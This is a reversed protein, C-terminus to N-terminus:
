GKLSYVRQWQELSVRFNTGSPAKIVLLHRLIQDQKLEQRRLPQGILKRVFRIMVRPREARITAPTLWYNVDPIVALPAPLTTVEAIAYIGAAPGALWVLVGDGIRIETRHRTVLWPMEVLNQIADLIRYHKPNAQFLWYDM